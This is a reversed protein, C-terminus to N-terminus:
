ETTQLLADLEMKENEDAELLRNLLKEDSQGLQHLSALYYRIGIRIYQDALDSKKLPQLINAAEEYQGLSYYIQGVAQRLFPTVHFSRGQLQEEPLSNLMDMRRLVEGYLELGRNWYNQATDPDDSYIAKGNVAYEMVAAEYFRIDWQFKSIGEELVAVADKYEQLDKLNRYKALIIQRNYPEVALIRRIQEKAQEAYLPDATAQYAQMLWDIKTYAYTPHAPSNAIAQDLPVLLENLPRQEKVAM